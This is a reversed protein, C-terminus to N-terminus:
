RRGRGEGYFTVIEAPSFIYLSTMGCDQILALTLQQRNRLVEPVDTIFMGCDLYAAEILASLDGKYREDLIRRDLLRSTHIEALDYQLDASSALVLDLRRPDDLINAALASSFEIHTKVRIKELEWV